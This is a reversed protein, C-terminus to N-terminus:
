LSLFLIVLDVWQFPKKDEYGKNWSAGPLSRFSQEFIEEMYVTHGADKEFLSSLEPAVEWDGKWNWGEPLKFKEKHL